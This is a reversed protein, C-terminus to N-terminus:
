RWGNLPYSHRCFIHFIPHNSAATPWQLKTSIGDNSLLARMSTEM